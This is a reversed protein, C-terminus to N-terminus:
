TSSVHQIITPFIEVKAPACIPTPTPPPYPTPRGQRKQFDFVTGLLTWGQTLDEMSFTTKLTDLLLLEM